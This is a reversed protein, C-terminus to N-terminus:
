AGRVLRYPALQARVRPPIEADHTDGIGRGAGAFAHTSVGGGAAVSAAAPNRQHYWSAAVDVIARSLVPEIRTAYQPHEQLGVDATITYPPNGFQVGVLGRIVGTLADVRYDTAPVTTGDVDVIALADPDLPYVPVLLRRVARDDPTAEDIFDLCVTLIPRDLWAEVTATAQAVLTDLLADEATTEIRLYTKLDTGTPLSM